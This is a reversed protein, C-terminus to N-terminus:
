KSDRRQRSAIGDVKAGPQKYVSMGEGNGGWERGMGFEWCGPTEGLYSTRRVIVVDCDRSGHDPVVEKSSASTNIGSTSEESLLESIGITCYLVLIFIDSYQFLIHIL